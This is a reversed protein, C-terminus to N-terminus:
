RLCSSAESAVVMATPGMGSVPRPSAMLSRRLRAAASRYVSWVAFMDDGAEHRHDWDCSVSLSVTDLHGPRIGPDLGPVAM